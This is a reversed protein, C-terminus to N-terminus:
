TCLPRVIHLAQCKSNLFKLLIKTLLVLYITPIKPCLKNFNAMTSRQSTSTLTLKVDHDDFKKNAFACFIIQVLLHCCKCFVDRCLLDFITGSFQATLNPPKLFISGSQGGWVASPSGPNTGWIIPTDEFISLGYSQLGKVKYLDLVLYM